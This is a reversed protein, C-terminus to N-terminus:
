ARYIEARQRVIVSGRGCYGKGAQRRYDAAAAQDGKLITILQETSAIWAGSNEERVYFVIRTGDFEHRIDVQFDQM